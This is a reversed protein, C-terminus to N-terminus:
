LIPTVNVDTMTPEIVDGRHGREETAGAEEAGPGPARSTETGRRRPLSTPATTLGASDEILYLPM